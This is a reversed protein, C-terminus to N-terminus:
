KATCGQCQISVSTSSANIPVIGCGLSALVHVVVALLAPLTRFDILSKVPPNTPM